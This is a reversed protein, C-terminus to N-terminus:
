NRIAQGRIDSRQMRAVPAARGREVFAVPSKLHISKAAMEKLLLLDSPPRVYCKFNWAALAEM